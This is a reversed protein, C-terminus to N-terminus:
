QEFYGKWCLLDCYGKERIEALNVDSVILGEQTAFPKGPEFAKDCILEHLPHNLYDPDNKLEPDDAGVIKDSTINTVYYRDWQYYELKEGCQPCYGLDYVFCDEGDRVVLYKEYEVFAVGRKLTIREKGSCFPCM